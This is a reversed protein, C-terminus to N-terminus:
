LSVFEEREFSLSGACSMWVAAISSVLSKAPEVCYHAVDTAVILRMLISYLKSASNEM